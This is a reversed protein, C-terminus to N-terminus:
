HYKQTRGRCIKRKAYTYGERVLMLLSPIAAWSFPLFMILLVNKWLKSAKRQDEEYKLDELDEMMRTLVTSVNFGTQLNVCFFDLDHERAFQQAEEVPVQLEKFVDLNALLYVQHTYKIDFAEHAEIRAKIVEFGERDSSEYVMILGTKFGKTMEKTPRFIEGDYIVTGQMFIM